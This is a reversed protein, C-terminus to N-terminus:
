MNIVVMCEFVEGGKAKWETDNGSHACVEFIGMSVVYVMYIRLNAVCIDDFYVTGKSNNGIVRDLDVEVEVIIDVVAVIVYTDM